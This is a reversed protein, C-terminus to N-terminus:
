ATHDLEELWLLFSHADKSKYGEAWGVLEEDRSREDKVAGSIEGPLLPDM